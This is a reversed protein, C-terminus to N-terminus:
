RGVATAAVREEAMAMEVMVAGMVVASKVDGMWEVAMVGVIKSGLMDVVSRAEMMGVAVNAVAMAKVVAVAMAKVVAVVTVVVTVVVM